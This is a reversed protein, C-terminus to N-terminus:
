TTWFILRQFDKLNPKCNSSPRYIMKTQTSLLIVDAVQYTHSDNFVYAFQEGLLHKVHHYNETMQLLLDNQKLLWCISPMSEGM